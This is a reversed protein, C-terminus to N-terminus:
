WISVSLYRRPRAGGKQQPLALARGDDVRFAPLNGVKDGDVGSIFM